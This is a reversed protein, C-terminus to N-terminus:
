VQNSETEVIASAMSDNTREAWESLKLRYQSVVAQYEPSAALNCMESRDARMDYLEESDGENWIYKFHNDVVARWSVAKHFVGLPRHELFQPRSVDGMGKNRIVKSLDTGEYGYKSSDLGVLGLITPALDLLSFSADSRCRKGLGQMSVIFPIRIAEEYAVMKQWLGHSGLFEGHDSTFVIITDEFIGEAKLCDILRGVYMDLMSVFGYYVAYSKRWDDFDKSFDESLQRYYCNKLYHPQGETHFFNEPKEVLSPDYMSYYPEPIKFPPHPGNYSCVSFFPKNQDRQQIMEIALDTIFADGNYEPVLDLVSTRPISMYPPRNSRVSRDNFAWGDVLGQEKCWKSYVKTDYGTAHEFWNHINDNGLHWKGAYSVQYGDEKLATTLHLDDIRMSYENTMMSADNLTIEDEVAMAGPPPCIGKVQHAFKGTFMSARSPGCLPSTCVAKDFSIGSEFLSDMNPTQVLPNNFGLTDPRMQDTIILLVNKKM